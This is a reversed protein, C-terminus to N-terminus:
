EMLTTNWGIGVDTSLSAIGRWDKTQSLIPNHQLTVGCTSSAREKLIGPYTIKPGHKSEIGDQYLQEEHTRRL